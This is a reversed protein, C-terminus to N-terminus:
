CAIDSDHRLLFLLYYVSATSPNFINSCPSLIRVKVHFRNGILYKCIYEKSAVM